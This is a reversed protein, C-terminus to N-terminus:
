TTVERMDAGCNPCFNWRPKGMVTDRTNEGCESCYFPVRGFIADASIWRGTKPQAMALEAELKEMEDTHEMMCRECEEPPEPQASPLARIKKIADVVFRCKRIEDIAAQRSILDDM